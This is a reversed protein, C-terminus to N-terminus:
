KDYGGSTIGQLDLTVYKFGIAKIKEVISTDEVVKKFYEKEVEIRAIDGQVRVRVYYIGLQHFIEEAKDVMMLKEKTLLTDYDFRSALCANAPKDHTEIGLEKSYARIQKKTMQSDYLPSIIGLEKCAEIGPRYVGEDDLNKGDAVYMYGQKNAEKIITSMVNKKCFYCRRKDNHKFAEVSFVDVPIEVHQVDKLMKRADEQDELSMMAGICIVALVNEKGLTRIAVQLLFNSDCGGSYAIAIKQYSKLNNELKELPNM